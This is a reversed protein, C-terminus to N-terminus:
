KYGLISQIARCEAGDVIMVKEKKLNKANFFYVASNGGGFGVNVAYFIKNKPSKVVYAVTREGLQFVETDTMSPKYCYDQYPTISCDGYLDSVAERTILKETSEAMKLDKVEQFYTIADEKDTKTEIQKCSLSANASITFILSSVILTWKM